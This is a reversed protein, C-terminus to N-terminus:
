LQAEPPVEVAFPLQVDEYEDGYAPLHVPEELPEPEYAETLVEIHIGGPEEGRSEEDGM